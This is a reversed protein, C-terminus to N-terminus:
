GIGVIYVIDQNVIGVVWEVVGVVTMNKMMKKKM